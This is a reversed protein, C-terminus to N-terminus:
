SVYVIAIADFPHATLQQLEQDKAGETSGLVLAASPREQADQARPVQADKCM